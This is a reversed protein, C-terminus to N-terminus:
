QATPSVILTFFGNTAGFSNSFYSGNSLAVGILNNNSDYYNKRFDAARFTDEALNNIRGYVNWECTTGANLVGAPVQFSITVGAQAPASASVTLGQSAATDWVNAQVPDPVEFTSSSFNYRFPQVFEDPGTKDKIRVLFYYYDAVSANWLAPNTETFTLTPTLSQSISGTAPSTLQDQFPGMLATQMVPSFASYGGNNTTNGSFARVKYYYSTGAVLGPDVDAYYYGGSSGPDLAGAQNTAILTWAKQDTSRYVQFGRIGPVTQGNVVNFELDIEFSTASSGSAAVGFAGTEVGFTNGVAVGGSPALSSLDPDSAIALADSIAVDVKQETRNNAVDYVVLDLYHPDGAALNAIPNAFIATTRYWTAGQYAVPTAQETYYAAGYTYDGTNPSNVPMQDAAMGIGFGGWSAPMIGSRALATVMIYAVNASTDSITNGSVNTWTTADPSYAISQIVPAAAVFTTAALPKVFLNVSSDRAPDLGLYASVASGPASAVLQYQGAPLGLGNAGTADVPINGELLNGNSDSLALTAAPVPMGGPGDFVWLATTAPYRTVDIAYSQSIDWEQAVVKLAIATTGVQLPQGASTTGSPVQGANVLVTATQSEAQPIVGVATDSTAYLTATMPSSAPSGKLIGQSLSASKLNADTDLKKSGGCGVILFLVSGLYLVPLELKKQLHGM